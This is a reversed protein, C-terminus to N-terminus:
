IMRHMRLTDHLGKSEYLRYYGILNQSGVTFTRIQAKVRQTRGLVCKQMAGDMQIGETRVM